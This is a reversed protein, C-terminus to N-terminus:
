TEFYNYISTRTFSTVEGINKLTIDKFTKSEYLKKCANMLFDKGNM